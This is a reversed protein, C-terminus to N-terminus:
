TVADTSSRDHELLATYLLHFVEAQSCPGSMVKTLLSCHPRGPISHILGIGCAVDVEVCVQGPGYQIADGHLPLGQKAGCDHAAQPSCLMSSLTGATVDQTHCSDFVKIMTSATMALKACSHAQKGQTPSIVSRSSIFALYMGVRRHRSNLVRGPVWSDQAYFDNTKSFAILMKQKSKLGRM